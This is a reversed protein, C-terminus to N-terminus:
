KKPIALFRENVKDLTKRLAELGEATDVHYVGVSFGGTVEIDQGGAYGDIRVDQGFQDNLEKALDYPIGPGQAIWYYWGREFSWKLHTGIVVTLVERTGTKGRMMEPMKEPRIGAKELEAIIEADVKVGAYNPFSM